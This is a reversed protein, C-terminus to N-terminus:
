LVSIRNFLEGTAQKRRRRACDLIVMFSLTAARLSPHVRQAVGPMFCGIVLPLFVMAFNVAKPM